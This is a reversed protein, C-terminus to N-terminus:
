FLFNYLINTKLRVTSNPNCPGIKSLCVFWVLLVISMMCLLKFEQVCPWSKKRENILVRKTKHM